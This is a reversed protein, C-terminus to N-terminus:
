VHTGSPSIYNYYSLPLRSERFLHDIVHVAKSIDASKQLSPFKIVTYTLFRSELQVKMSEWFHMHQLILRHFPQPVKWSKNRGFYSPNRAMFQQRTTRGNFRFTTPQSRAKYVSIYDRGFNPDFIYACSINCIFHTSTNWLYSRIITRTWVRTLNSYLSM